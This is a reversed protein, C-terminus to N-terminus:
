HRGGSGGGQVKVEIATKTGDGAVSAKVSVRDGAQLDSGALTANGKRISTSANLLFTTDTGRVDVVLQTNSASKVTGDYTRIENEVRANQVIVLTATGGTARVHVRDGEKLDTALVPTDGKRIDTSADLVFTVEDGHSDLIVLRTATASRVLGEYEKAERESGDEGDDQVIVLLALYVDNAKAAKVHVRTGGALDAAAVTTQGKRILTNADLAMTVEEQHSTFVILETAGASRVLGEFEYEKRTGGASRRKGGAPQATQTAGNASLAVNVFGSDQQVALTADIGDGRRFVLVADEPVDMFAFAGDGALTTTMGTGRVSVQVGSPSTNELGTVVVRGAVVGAGYGGTITAREGKCAALAMLAAVIWMSVKLRM